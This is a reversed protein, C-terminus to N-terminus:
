PLRGWKMGVELVAELSPVERGARDHELDFCVEGAEVDRVAFQFTQPQVRGEAVRDPQMGFTEVLPGRKGAVVRYLTFPASHRRWAEANRLQLELRLEGRALSAATSADARLCLRLPFKAYTARVWATGDRSACFATYTAAVVSAAVVLIAATRAHRRLKAHSM